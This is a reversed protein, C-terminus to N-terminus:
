LVFMSLFIILFHTEIVKTESIKVKKRPAENPQDKKILYIQKQINEMYKQIVVPKPQSENEQKTKEKKNGRPKVTKGRKQKVDQGAESKKLGKLLVMSDLEETYRIPEKSFPTSVIM